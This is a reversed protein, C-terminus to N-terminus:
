PSAMYVFGPSTFEHDPDSFSSPVTYNDATSSNPWLKMNKQNPDDHDDFIDTAMASVTTDYSAGGAVDWGAEWSKQAALDNSTGASQALWAVTHTIGIKRMGYAVLFNSAKALRVPRGKWTAVVGFGASNVQNYAWVTPTSASDPRGLYDGAGSNYFWHFLKLNRELVSYTAIVKAAFTDARGVDAAVFSDIEAGALPLVVNAESKACGSFGLDFDFRYVGGQNPNQYKVEFTDTRDFSGSSPGSIKSWIENLMDDTISSPLINATLTVDFDQVNFSADIVDKYFVVMHKDPNPSHTVDFPWPKHGEFPPPNASTGSEPSTVDIIDVKLISYYATLVPSLRADQWEGDPLADSVAAGEYQTPGIDTIQAVPPFDGLSQVIVAAIVNTRGQASVWFASTSTLFTIHNQLSWLYAGWTGEAEYTGKVWGANGYFTEPHVVEVGSTVALLASWAAAPSGYGWAGVEVERAETYNTMIQVSFPGVVDTLDGAMTTVAYRSPVQPLSVTVATVPVM